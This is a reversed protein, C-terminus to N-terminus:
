VEMVFPSMMKNVDEPINKLVMIWEEKTEMLRVVWVMLVLGLYQNFMLGRPLIFDEYGYDGSEPFYSILRQGLGKLDRVRVKQNSMGDIRVLEKVLEDLGKAEM